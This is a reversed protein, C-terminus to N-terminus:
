VVEVGLAYAFRILAEKKKIYYYGLSFGLSNAIFRDDYNDEKDLYAWYIFKREETTLKNFSSRFYNIFKIRKEKEERNLSNSINFANDNKLVIEDFSFDDNVYIEINNAVSLIYFNYKEITNVINEKIKKYDLEQM